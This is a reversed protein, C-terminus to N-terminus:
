HITNQLSPAVLEPTGVGGLASAPVVINEHPQTSKKEEPQTQQALCKGLVEHLAKDEILAVENQKALELINNPEINQGNITSKKISVQGSNISLVIVCSLDKGSTDKANWSMEIDCIALKTFSYNRQQKENKEITVIKKGHDYIKARKVESKEEEMKKIKETFLRSTELTQGPKIININLLDHHNLARGAYKCAVYCGDFFTITNDNGLLKKGDDMGESIRLLYRGLREKFKNQKEEKEKLREQGENKSSLKEDLINMIEKQKSLVVYNFLFINKNERYYNAIKDFPDAPWSNNYNISDSPDECKNDKFNFNLKKFDSLVEEVEDSSFQLEDQLKKEM